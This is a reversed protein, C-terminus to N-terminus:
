STGDIDYNGVIDIGGNSNYLIPISGYNEVVIMNVQTQSYDQFIVEILLSKGSYTPDSLDLKFFRM